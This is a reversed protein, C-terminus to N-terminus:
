SIGRFKSRLIAIKEQMTKEPIAPPEPPPEPKPPREAPGEATREPRRPGNRPFRRRGRDQPPRRFEVRSAARDRFREVPKQPDM